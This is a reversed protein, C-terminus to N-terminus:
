FVIDAFSYLLFHSCVFNCFYFCGVIDKAEIYLVPVEKIIVFDPKNRKQAKADHDIRQVKIQKFIEKLLIEFDARYGMESTEHHKFKQSISKLYTEFINTM